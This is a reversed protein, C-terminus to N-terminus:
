QGNVAAITVLPFTLLRCYLNQVNSMFQNLEEATMQSMLALDLGLCYHKGDAITVVATADEYSYYFHTTEWVVHAPECFSTVIANM